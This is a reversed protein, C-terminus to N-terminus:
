GGRDPAGEADPSLLLRARRQVGSQSVSGLLSGTTSGRGPSGVVLLADASSEEILIHVPHGYLVESTVAVESALVREVVAQVGSTLNLLLRARLDAVSHLAALRELEQPTGSPHWVNIARVPLGRLRGEDLAWALADDSERSGDVGAV